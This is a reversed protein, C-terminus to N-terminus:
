SSKLTYNGSCHRAITGLFSPGQSEAHASNFQPGKGGSQDELHQLINKLRCDCKEALRHEERRLLELCNDPRTM